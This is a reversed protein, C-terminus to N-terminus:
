LQSKNQGIQPSLGGGATVSWGGEHTDDRSEPYM